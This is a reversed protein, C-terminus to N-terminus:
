TADDDSVVYLRWSRFEEALAIDMDAFWGSPSEDGLYLSWAAQRLLEYSNKGYMILLGRAIARPNRVVRPDRRLLALVAITPNLEEQKETAAKYEALIPELIPRVIERAEAFRRERELRADPTDFPACVSCPEREDCRCCRDRLREFQPNLGHEAAYRCIHGCGCPQQTM